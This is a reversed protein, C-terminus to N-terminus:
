GWDFIFIPTGVMNPTHLLKEGTQSEDRSQRESRNEMMKQKNTIM